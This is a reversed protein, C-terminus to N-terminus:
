DGGPFSCGRPLILAGKDRLAQIEADAQAKAETARAAESLLAPLTRHGFAFRTLEGSAERYCSTLVIEGQLERVGLSLYTVGMFDFRKGIPAFTELERTQKDTRRAEAARRTCEDARRLDIRHQVSRPLLAALFPHM